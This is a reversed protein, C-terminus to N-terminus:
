ERNAMMEGLHRMVEFPGASSHIQLVMNDDILNLTPYSQIDLWTKLELHTDALIPIHPNPYAEHWM